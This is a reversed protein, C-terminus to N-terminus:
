KQVANKRDDDSFAVNTMGSRTNSVYNSVSRYTSGIGAASLTNTMAAFLPIGIKAAEAIADQNAGLFVFEWSYAERQHTIMDNIQTRTFEKSANEYGDTVIVCIVKQPRDATAIGALRAGTSNITRGIADLLATSGRPVFTQSTLPPVDAIPQSAHIVEYDHDFQVLSFVADGPQAKQDSLFQNFGGITDTVVSQMSGSRDLIVSIDTKM